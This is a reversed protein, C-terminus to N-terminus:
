VGVARRCFAALAALTEEPREFQPAHGVGALILAEVQPRRARVVEVQKLTGFPDADGQVVLASVRWKDICEAINWRAFDPDLWARNWGHFAGDVDAHYKALRARLDGQRYAREAARIASLGEPETFFHPAILAIGRLRPDDLAGAYIAAISAGDSHGILVVNEVRLADLVRPLVDVAERTMYDLPRPLAIPDSRGYGARSYAVVGCGTAAALKQPLDRWLAACGLGEHLLVITPAVDPPPGCRISELKVGEIDLFGPKAPAASTM